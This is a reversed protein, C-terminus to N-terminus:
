EDFLRCLTSNSNIMLIGSEDDIKTIKSEFLFQKNFNGKIWLIQYSNVKNKYESKMLNHYTIFILHNEINVVSNYDYIIFDNNANNKLISIYDDLDQQYYAIILMKNDNYYITKESDYEIAIAYKDSIYNKINIKDIMKFIDVPLLKNNIYEQKIEVVKLLSLDDKYNILAQDNSSTKIYTDKQYILNFNSRDKLNFTLKINFAEFILYPCSIINSLACIFYVNFSHADKILKIFSYKDDSLIDLLHNIDNIFIFIPICEKNNIKRNKIEIIVAKIYKLLNYDDYYISRINQNNITDHINFTIINFDNISCKILSNIMSNLLKLNANKNDNILLISKDNNYDIFFDDIRCKKINDIIGLYSFFGKRSKIIIKYKNIDDFWIKHLEVNFKNIIQNINAIIKSSQKLENKNATIKSKIINYSCDCLNIVKQNDNVDCNTYASKGFILNNDCFLYFQGVVSIYAADSVKIIDKSEMESQVRLCLKFHSNSIIQDDVIGAPKQTALLLHIGLSRGIRSIAIIEDIFIPDNQKLQAFEDVIIVIHSLYDLDIFQDYLMQYTDINMMTQMCQSMAKNMLIQRRHCEYKLADISRYINSDHNDIVNSIHSLIIDDSYLSSSLNGGKYDIIIFQLQNPNYTMALSLIFTMILESKGSGTCGAILGHPGMSKENIDLLIIEDVDSVGLFAIINDYTNNICYNNYIQKISYKCNFRKEFLDIISIYAQNFIRESNNCLLSKNILNLQYNIDKIFTYNIKFPLNNNKIMHNKIVYYNDIFSPMLDICELFLIIKVRDENIILRDIKNFINIDGVFVIVLKNELLIKKMESNLQNVLISDDFIAHNICNNYEFHKNCCTNLLEKNVYGLVVCMIDDYGHRLICQVILNFMINNKNDYIILCNYKDNIIDLYYYQDNSYMYNNITENIILNCDSESNKINLFEIENIKKGKGIVLKGYDFHDITTQFLSNFEYNSLNFCENIDYDLYENIEKNICNCESIFKGMQKEKLKIQRKKDLKYNIFPWLVASLCMTIPIIIMPLFDILSRNNQIGNFITISAVLISALAMTLSPAISLIINNKQHYMIKEYEPFKIILKPKQKSKRYKKLVIVKDDHLSGLYKNVKYYNNNLTIVNMSLIDNYFYLKLLGCSVCQNTIEFENINLRNDIYLNNQDSNILYKNNIRKISIISNKYNIILEDNLQYKNYNIFGSFMEIFKVKYQNIYIDENYSINNDNIQIYNNKIIFTYCYGDILISNKVLTVQQYNAKSIIAITYKCASYM